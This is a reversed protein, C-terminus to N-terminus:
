ETYSRTVSQRDPHYQFIDVGMESYILKFHVPDYYYKKVGESSFNRERPGIYIYDISYKNVIEIAQKLDVQDFLSYIDKKISRFKETSQLTTSAAKLNGLAMARGGIYAIPSMPYYGDAYEPLSQVISTLPTNNRIWSSAEFDASSIASKGEIGFSGSFGAFDTVLTTAGLVGIMFSAFVWKLFGRERRRNKLMEFFLGSLIVLAIQLLKGSKRTVEHYATPHPHQVMSIFFICVVGLILILHDNRDLELGIKGRLLAWMGLVSFILLPGFDLLFYALGYFWFLRYPRLQLSSASRSFSFLGVELSLLFLAFAVLLSVAASRFVDVKAGRPEIAINWVVVAGFWCISILGIFSDATFIGALLAGIAGAMEPKVERLKRMNLLTILSLFLVLALVAQPEVLLDRYWGHSVDSFGLLGKARLASELSPLQPVIIRKFLVYLAKYSHAILGCTIALYITKKNRLFAKCCLLLGFLFLASFWLDAAMIVLDPRLKVDVANRIFALFSYVLFYYSSDHNALFISKVPVGRLVASTCAARGLYDHSFLSHYVHESGSIHGVRALPIALALMLFVGFGLLFLYDLYDVSPGQSTPYAKGYKRKSYAFGLCTAVLISVVTLPINWGVYKVV